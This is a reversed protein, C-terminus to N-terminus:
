MTFGMKHNKVLKGLFERDLLRCFPKWSMPLGKLPIHDVKQFGLRENTSGKRVTCGTYIYYEALVTVLFSFLFDVRYLLLTLLSRRVIGLACGVFSAAM